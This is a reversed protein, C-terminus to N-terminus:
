LGLRTKNRGLFNDKRAPDHFTERRDKAAKMAWLARAKQAEQTKKKKKVGVAKSM